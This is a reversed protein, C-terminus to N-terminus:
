GAAAHPVFRPLWYVVLSGVDYAHYGFKKLDPIIPPPQDRYFVFAHRHDRTAREWPPYRIYSDPTVEAQTGNWHVPGWENKAGIIHEKTEFALKYVVWHTSYIYRVGLRDLESTLPALNNPPDTAPVSSLVIAHHLVVISTLTGIAILIAGRVRTTALQAFLLPLVPTVPILYRPDGSEITWQSIAYVFPFVLAVFYILSTNRRRTKIAGYVFLGAFVFLLLYTLVAPLERTQTFFQRLGLIMPLLPSAYIRLRHLYTSHAPYSVSLSAWDHGANWILWPLAGLVALPLAVWLKRLAQPRRWITWVLIPLMAPVVQSTQWFALGCVLGLVGVRRTSPEEVVRLALLMVLACYFVDSGYYGHEHTLQFFNYPLWVWFLVGAVSAAPEGITRRGVRWVLFATVATLAIPIMRLALWSSGFLLFLGAALLCEQIGGYKLGWIFAPFQGDLIHRATLGVVGEDADPTDLASRYVWVRLVIGAIGSAVIAVTWASISLRRLSYQQLKAPTAVV